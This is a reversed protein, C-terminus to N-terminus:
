EFGDTDEYREENILPTLTAAQVVTKLYAFGEDMTVVRFEVHALEESGADKPGTDTVEVRVRIAV